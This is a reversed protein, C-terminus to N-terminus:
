AQRIWLLVYRVTDIGMGMEYGEMAEKEKANYMEWVKSFERGLVFSPLAIM